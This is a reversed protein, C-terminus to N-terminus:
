RMAENKACFAVDWEDLAQLVADVRRIDREADSREPHWSEDRKSDEYACILHEVIVRPTAKMAENEGTQRM